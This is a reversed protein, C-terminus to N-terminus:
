HCSSHTEKYTVVSATYNAKCASSMGRGKGTKGM